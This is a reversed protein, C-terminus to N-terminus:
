RVLLCCYWGDRGHVMAAGGHTGPQDLCCSIFRGYTTHGVGECSAGGLSGGIHGKQGRQAAVTAKQLALAQLQPDPALPGMGYRQREGNAKQLASVSQAQSTRAPQTIPMTASSQVVGGSYISPEAFSRLQAQNMPAPNVPVNDISVLREGPNLPIGLQSQAYAAHSVCAITIAWCCTKWRNEM